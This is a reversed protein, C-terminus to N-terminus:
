SISYSLSAQRTGTWSTASLQVGSLLLLKTVLWSTGLVASLGLLKSLCPIIRMAELFLGESVKTEPKGGGCLSLICKQKKLGGLNLYNTIM